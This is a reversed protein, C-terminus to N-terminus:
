ALPTESTSDDGLPMAIKALSSAVEADRQRSTDHVPEPGYISPVVKTIHGPGEALEREVLGRNLYGITSIM